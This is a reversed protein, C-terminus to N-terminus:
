WLFQYKTLLETLFAFSLLLDTIETIFIPKAYNALNDYCHINIYM